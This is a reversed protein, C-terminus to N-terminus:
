KASVIDVRADVVRLTGPKGAEGFWRTRQDASLRVEFRESRATQVSSPDRALARMMELLVDRGWAKREPLAADSTSAPSPLPAATQAALAALAAPDLPNGKFLFHGGMVGAVEGGIYGSHPQLAFRDRDGLMSVRAGLRSLGERQLGAGDVIVACADGLGEFQGGRAVVARNENIGVGFRHGSVELAAVMRGHRGRASTHTDIIVGGILGFGKGLRVGRPPPPANRDNDGEGDPIADGSLASESGGGTFMPDAMVAAGASTGGVITGHKLMGARLAQLVANPKGDQSLFRPILRSQDGGTFYVLDAHAIWDAALKLSAEDKAPDPLTVYRAGPRRQKFRAITSEASKQAEASSYPVVVIKDTDNRILLRKLIADNDDELGGGILIYTPLAVAAAPRADEEGARACAAGFMAMGCAAWRLSLGNRM